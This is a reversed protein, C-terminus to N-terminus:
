EPIHTDHLIRITDDGITPPLPMDLHSLAIAAVLTYYDNPRMAFTQRDSHMLLNKARQVQDFTLTDTTM